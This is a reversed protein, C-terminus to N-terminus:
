ITPKLVMMVVILVVIVGMTIGLGRGKNSLQRFEPSGLEGAEALAIQGRLVPTFQTIALVALVVYLGISAAIWFTEFGIDADLVMGIGLLLIVFYAPNAVKDDLVKIGKLTFGQHEPEKAARAMWIGYTINTGVAVIALLVHVLKMVSYASINLDM